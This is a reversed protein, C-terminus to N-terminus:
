PITKGHKGKNDHYLKEMNARVEPTYAEINTKGFDVDRSPVTVDDVTKVTNKNDQCQLQTTGLLLLTLLVSKVSLNNKM